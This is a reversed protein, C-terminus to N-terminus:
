KNNVTHVSALWDDAKIKGLVFYLCLMIILLMFKIYPCPGRCLSQLATALIPAVRVTLTYMKYREFAKM